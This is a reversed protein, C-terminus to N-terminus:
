VLKLRLLLAQIEVVMDEPLGNLDPHRDGILIRGLARGLKQEEPPASPLCALIEFQRFLQKLLRRDGRVAQEVYVLLDELSVGTQAM